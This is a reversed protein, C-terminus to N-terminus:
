VEGKCDTVRGKMGNSAGEGRLEFVTLLKGNGTLYPESKKIHCEISDGELEKQFIFSLM